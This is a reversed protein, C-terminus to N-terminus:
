EEPPLKGREAVLVSHPHALEGQSGSLDPMQDNAVAEAEEEGQMYTHIYTRLVYLCVCMRAEGDSKSNVTLTRAEVSGRGKGIDSESVVGVVVVM